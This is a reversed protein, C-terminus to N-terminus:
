FLFEEKSARFLSGTLNVDKPMIRQLKLTKMLEVMDTDDDAIMDYPACDGLSPRITSNIHNALLTIDDQTFQNLDTGKPLVYRIYEHNKEIEAKQWSAMPDCYFIHTRIQHDATFELAEVNKFESGNDTLIVRFLRQFRELGLQLELLDFIRIVSDQSGDPLLFILMINSNVFLLTLLCTKSGKPGKVTDMEVVNNILDGTVLAKFDEYTRGIRYTQFLRKSEPDHSKVRRKRYGNRRRLDSPRVKLKGKLIYNYVSRQCVPISDKQTACIHAIPQGKKVLTAITRNM